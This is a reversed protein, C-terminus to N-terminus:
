ASVGALQKPGPHRYVMETGHTVNEYSREYHAGLREALAVSRTNGPFINSSLTDFGLVDYAYRRVEEAAERAYGKGESGEYMVWGLEPEPWGEPGWIGVFGIPQNDHTEVMWFGYGNLVWHGILSAFWRWAENRDLPGGFGWSRDKDAFFTAIAEFDHAEPGRLILRETQLVPIHLDMM